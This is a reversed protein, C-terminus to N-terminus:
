LKETNSSVLDTYIRPSRIPTPFPTNRSEEVIKWKERQKLEYAEDTIEEEELAPFITNMIGLSQVIMLSMRHGEVMKEIEVSALHENVLEVNERAEQEERSKHEALSVQLIDQLIMKDAKDITPVPTPSTLRISRRQPIRFRIMTSRKPASSEAADM